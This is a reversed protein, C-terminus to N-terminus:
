TGVPCVAQNKTRKTRDDSSTNEMVMQCCVFLLIDRKMDPCPELFM